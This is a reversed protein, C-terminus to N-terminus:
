DNEPAESYAQRWVPQPEPKPESAEWAAYAVECRAYAKEAEDKSIYEFVFVLGQTNKQVVYWGAEPWFLEGLHKEEATPAAAAEMEAREGDHSPIEVLAYAGVPSDVNGDSKVNWGIDVLHWMLPDYKEALLRGGDDYYALVTNM